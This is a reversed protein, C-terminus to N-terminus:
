WGGYGRPAGGGGRRNRPEQDMRRYGNSNCASNGLQPRRPPPPSAGSETDTFMSESLGFAGMPGMGGFMPGMSGMGMAPGDLNFPSNAPTPQTLYNARSGGNAMPRVQAYPDPPLNFRPPRATFGGNVWRPSPAPTPRTANSGRPGGNAAPRVQAYPGPFLSSRPPPVQVHAWRAGTTAPRRGGAFANWEDSGQWVGDEPIWEARCMPCEKKDDPNHKLLEQLCNLGILHGCGQIGTIKVCIHEEIGDLCIPCETNPPDSTDGHSLFDTHEALFRAARDQSTEEDEDDGYRHTSRNGRYDM